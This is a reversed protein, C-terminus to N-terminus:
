AVAAKAAYVPAFVEAVFTEITTPTTNKGSRPQQPKLLGANGAKMMEIMLAAMTKSMGMQALAPELMMFPVQIYGLGPNGIAKGIISAVEV